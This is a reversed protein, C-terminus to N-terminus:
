AIALPTGSAVRGNALLLVLDGVTAEATLGLEAIPVTGPLQQAAIGILHLEGAGGQVALLASLDDPAVQELVISLRDLVVACVVTLRHPESRPLAAITKVADADRLADDLLRMVATRDAARDDQVSLVKLVPLGQDLAQQWHPLMFDIMLADERLPARTGDDAGIGALWANVEAWRWVPSRGATGEPDPFPEASQRTGNAWQLVNQRTRGTREAIDSVGVLDPDLRLVRLRPIERRLRAVLNHAADVPTAGSASVSLLHLNRHRSLLGDFSECIVSVAVEDDLSVGDVVLVFEYEM